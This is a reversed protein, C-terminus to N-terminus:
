LDTLSAKSTGAIRIDATNVLSKIEGIVSDDPLGKLVPSRLIERYKEVAFDRATRRGSKEYEDRDARQFIEPMFTGRCNKVTTENDLFHGGSKITLLDRWSLDTDTVEPVAQYRRLMRGLENDLIAQVPSFVTACELQGVGGLIDAGSLVVARALMAREAQSQGDVDPTDSGVGYTHTLLGFGQKMLQIAMTAGQMCEVSSQLCRGTRMDLAFILPTAIVPTAGGLVHAMVVIGLIEAAAMLVTGSMALPATGGSTPLSCAHIPLGAGASHIIAEVDMPKYELPSFSCVICSAIPRKRVEAEGGGALSIIQMLYEINVAEYPQVWVHKPTNTIIEALGHIDATTEPVGNIFPHAMFGIQDLASGVRAINAADEKRLNRYEATVPDVFGHGGTGTRMTFTGDAQPLEIDYEPSKGCLKVKGPTAALAEAVMNRPLRYRDSEHPSRKAGAGLLKQAMLEHTLVVGHQELLDFARASLREVASDPLYTFRPRHSSLTLPDALQAARRNIRRRRRGPPAQSKPCNSNTINKM